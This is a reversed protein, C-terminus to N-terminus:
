ASDEYLEERVHTETQFGTTFEGSLIFYKSKLGILRLLSRVPFCSATMAAWAGAENSLRTILYSTEM